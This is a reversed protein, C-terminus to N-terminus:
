ESNKLNDMAHRVLASRLETLESIGLVNRLAVIVTEIAYEESVAKGKWAKFGYKAGFVEAFEAFMENIADQEGPVAAVLQADAGISRIAAEFKELVAEIEPTLWVAWERRIGVLTYAHQLADQHPGKRFLTELTAFVEAVYKESFQVHKDFAVSAMHSTAGLTFRNKAEEMQATHARALEAKFAELDRKLSQDVLTKILWTLLGSAIAFLGIPQLLALLAPWNM